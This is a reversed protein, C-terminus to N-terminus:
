EVEILQTGELRGQLRVQEHGTFAQPGFTNAKLEVTVDGGPMLMEANVPISLTAEGILGQLVSGQPLLLTDRYLEGDLRDFEVTGMMEVPFTNGFDLHLFGDFNPVEDLGELAFSDRLVLGNVGLKLPVRLQYWFTPPHNVDLRDMLFESTKIPNLEMRGAVHLSRPFGELEDLFTSGSGGLDLSWESPVPVDNVWVARPIDHGSILDGVVLDEDFQLTDIFLRLDAGITNTVHLSSTTGELDIAPEPLPITDLLAVDASASETLQGFYGSVTEVELAQFTLNTVISDTESVLYFGNPATVEGSIALVQVELANSDFGGVQTFDFNAGSLDIADSAGGASTETAPPLPLTIEMPAGEIQVGPFTFQVDIECQLSHQVLIQVSGGSIQAKTLELGEPKSLNIEIVPLEDDSLAVPLGEQVPVNNELVGEGDYRVSITTDPLQAWATWDWGDLTDALVFHAPEGDVGAEYLSDPVVDSWTVRDDLVPIHIDNEWSVPNACSWLLLVSMASYVLLNKMHIKQCIEQALYM